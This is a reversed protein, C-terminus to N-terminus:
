KNEDCIIISNYVIMEDSISFSFEGNIIVKSSILIDNIIAYNLLNKRFLINLTIECQEKLIFNKKVYWKIFVSFTNPICSVIKKWLITDNENTFGNLSISKIHYEDPMAGDYQYCLEISLFRTKPQGIEVQNLFNEKKKSKNLRIANNSSCNKRPVISFRNQALKNEKDLKLNIEHLRRNQWVAVAGLTITGLTALSTAYLTLIDSATFAINPPENSLYGEMYAANIIFPIIVITALILVILIWVWWRRYWKMNLSFFDKLKKM